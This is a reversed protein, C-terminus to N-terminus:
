PKLFVLQRNLEDAKRQASEKTPFPMGDDNFRAFSAGYGRELIYLVERPEPHRRVEWPYDSEDYSM